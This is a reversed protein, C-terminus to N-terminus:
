RTPVSTLDDAILQIVLRHPESKVCSRDCMQFHRLLSRVKSTASVVHFRGVRGLAAPESGMGRETRGVCRSAAAALENTECPQVSETRPPFVSLSLQGPHDNDEEASTPFLHEGEESTPVLFPPGEAVRCGASVVHM